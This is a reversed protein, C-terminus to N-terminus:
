TRDIIDNQVPKGLDYFLANYGSVRVVLDRYKEPYKKLM